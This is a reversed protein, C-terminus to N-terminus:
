GPGRSYTAGEARETPSLWSRIAHSQMAAQAVVLLVVLLLICKRIRKEPRDSWAPFAEPEDPIPWGSKM